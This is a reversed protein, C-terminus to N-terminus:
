DSDDYLRRKGELEKIRARREEKTMSRSEDFVSSRSDVKIKKGYEDPYLKELMWRVETTNGLATNLNMATTLKSLLSKKLFAEEFDLRAQFDPDEELEKQLDLSCEALLYTSARKMGLKICNLIVAKKEEVEMGYTYARATSVYLM